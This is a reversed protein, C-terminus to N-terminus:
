IREEIIAIPNPAGIEDFFAILKETYKTPEMTDEDYSWSIQGTILHKDDVKAAFSCRTEYANYIILNDDAYLVNNREQYGEFSYQLDEKDLKVISLMYNGDKSANVVMIIEKAKNQEQLSGNEKRLKIIEKDQVIVKNRFQDAENSADGEYFKVIDNRSYEEVGLHTKAAEVVINAMDKTIDNAVNDNSVNAGCGSMMVVCLLVAVLRTIKRAVKRGEYQMCIDKM